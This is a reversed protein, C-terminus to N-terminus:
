EQSLFIDLAELDTLGLIDKLLVADNITLKERGSMKRYLTSKNIGMLDATTAITLGNTVMKAKLKNADMCSVERQIQQTEHLTYFSLM